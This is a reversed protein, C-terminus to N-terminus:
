PNPHIPIKIRIVTGVGEKSILKLGFPAGYHLRFREHVNVFGISNFRGKRDNRERNNFMQQQKQKGMGVGNDAVYVFLSQGHVKARIQIIGPKRTPLIGHFIANEVIPQISLKLIECRLAEESIDMQVDFNPGYRISQIQVFMGISELEQRLQVKESIKDFSYSLLGSLSRITAEVEHIREQQALSHICALTNHLFHPGIQSQLMKIELEKRREANHERENMLGVIRDMMLNYSAVLSGIEDNRVDLIKLPVDLTRVKNMKSVLKKIPNTFYRSIIFTCLFLAVVWLLLTNRANTYLSSVSQYFYNEDYISFLNWGLYNALSKVIILKGNPGEVENYGYELDSLRKVFSPQIRSPVVTNDYPLLLSQNDKTVINGEQTIVVFTQHVGALLPALRIALNELDIEGIVVASVHGNNDKVPKMFAVTRGSLLSNYPESWTLANSNELARQYLRPLNPNGLIDYYLQSNTFVVGNETVVYLTKINLQNLNGYRRLTSEIMEKKDQSWEKESSLMSLISKINEVYADIFQNTRVMLEKSDNTVVQKYLVESDKYNKYAMGLFLAVTVVFLIIFLKWAMGWSQVWVLLRKM